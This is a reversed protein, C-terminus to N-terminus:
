TVRETLDSWGVSNLMSEGGQLTGDQKMKKKSAYKKIWCMIYKIYTNQKNDAQRM